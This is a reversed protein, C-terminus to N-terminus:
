GVTGLTAHPITGYWASPNLNYVRVNAAKAIDVVHKMSAMVIEDYSPSTSSLDAEANSCGQRARHSPVLKQGTLTTAYGDTGWSLDVGAFYIPNCGMMVAFYYAMFISSM